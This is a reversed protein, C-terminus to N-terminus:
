LFWNRFLNSFRLLFRFRRLFLFFRLDLLFLLSWFSRSMRLSRYDLFFRQLFSGSRNFFLSSGGFFCLGFFRRWLLTHCRNFLWRRKSLSISLTLLFFLGLLFFRWFLFNGFNLLHIGWDFLCSFWRM